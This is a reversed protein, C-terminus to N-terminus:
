DPTYTMIDGPQCDFRDCLRNITTTNIVGGQRLRNITTPSWGEQRLTYTSVNKKEMLTWLKDFNIM